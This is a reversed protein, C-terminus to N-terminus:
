NDGYLFKYTKEMWYKVDGFLARGDKSPLCNFQYIGKWKRAFLMDERLIELRYLDTMCFEYPLFKVDTDSLNVLFNIIPQDTGVGFTKMLEKIRDKNNMYLSLMNKYIDKHEKNIVQFGANFYNYYPFKKNDFLYKSYNEYSRLMWDVSGITRTVAYKHESLEFFNPCEPHIICDADTILIQDYDINNQELLDFVYYRQFNVKMEEHDHILEDLIVVESNNNKAWNKFSRIGYNYASVDYDKRTQKMSPIDIATIFIINKSM